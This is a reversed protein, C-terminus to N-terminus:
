TELRCLRPQCLRRDYRRSGGVGEDVAGPTQNDRSQATSVQFPDKETTLLRSGADVPNRSLATQHARALGTARRILEEANIRPTM